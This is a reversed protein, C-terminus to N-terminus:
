PLPKQEPPFYGADGYLKHPFPRAAVSEQTAGYFELLEDWQTDKVFDLDFEEAAYIQVYNALGRKPLFITLGHVNPWSEGHCEAIVAEKFKQKAFTLQEHLAIDPENQSFKDLFDYVDMYKLKFKSIESYLSDMMHTFRFADSYYSKLVTNFAEIFPDLRDAAIASMTLESQWSGGNARYKYIADTIMTAFPETDIEPNTNLTQSIDRMAYVWFCYGSDNESALYVKTNNRLEYVSELAGMICPASFLIMEVPGAENLAQQMEDMILAPDNNTDDMCTGWCGGGHDYISLIYRDAPHYKKAYLIFDRLTEPAGMNVEGLDEKLIPTHTSDIYFIKGGEDTRDRLMIFDVDIGSRVKAAFDNTPDYAGFGSSEGVLGFDADNYLLFTWKKPQPSPSPPDEVRPSNPTKNCGNILINSLILYILTSRCRDKIM